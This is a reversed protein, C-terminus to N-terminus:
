PILEWLLWALQGESNDWRSLKNSKPLVSDQKLVMTIRRRGGAEQRAEV